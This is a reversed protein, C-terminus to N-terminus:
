AQRRIDMMEALSPDRMELPSDQEPPLVTTVPRRVVPPLAPKATTATRRTPPAPMNAQQIPM